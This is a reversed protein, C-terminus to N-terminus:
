RLIYPPLAHMYKLRINQEQSREIPNLQTSDM